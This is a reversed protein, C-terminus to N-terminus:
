QVDGERGSGDGAAADGLSLRLMGRRVAMPLVVALVAGATLAIWSFGQLWRDAAAGILYTVATVCGAWFIGGLVNAILFRRYAMALMGALPGALIRLLAVFRGFFVTWMGFRAFIRAALDVNAQGFHRPFKAALRDLLKSGFRRGAMFGLSDGTIAGFAGAAAVWWSSIHLAHRTSLLAASALAIEGPFPVGLSEVGVALVVMTYVAYAPLTALLADIRM